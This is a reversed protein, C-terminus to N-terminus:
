LEEIKPDSGDGIRKLAAVFIEADTRVFFQAIELTRGPKYITVKWKMGNTM